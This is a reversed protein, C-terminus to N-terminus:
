TYKLLVFYVFCIIFKNSRSLKYGTIDYRRTRFSLSSNKHVTQDSTITRLRNGACVTLLFTSSFYERKKKKQLFNKCLDPLNEVPGRIRLCETQTKLINKIRKTLNTLHVHKSTLKDFQFSRCVKQMGRIYVPFKSFKCRSLGKLGVINRWYVM